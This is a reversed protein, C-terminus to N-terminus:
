QLYKNSMIEQPIIEPEYRVPKVWMYYDPTTSRDAFSAVNAVANCKNIFDTARAKDDFAAVISNDAYVLFIYNNRM